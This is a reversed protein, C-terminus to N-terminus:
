ENLLLLILLLLLLLLIRIIRNIKVIMMTIFLVIIILMCKSIYGALICFYYLNCLYFVSYVECIM